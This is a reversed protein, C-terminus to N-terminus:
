KMANGEGKKLSKIIAQIFRLRHGLDIVKKVYWTRPHTKRIGRKKKGGDPTSRNLKAGFCFTLSSFGPAMFTSEFASSPFATSM